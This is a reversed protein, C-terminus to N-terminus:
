VAIQNAYFQTGWHDLHEPWILSGGSILVGGSAVHDLVARRMSSDRPATSLDHTYPGFIRELGSRGGRSNLPFLYCERQFRVINSRDSLLKQYTPDLLWSTCCIAKFPRDPFYESFFAAAQRLSDGCDDFGMPGDEPIHIELITDGEQLVCEWESLPLEVSEQVAPGTPCILNGTVHEHTERFLTTWAHDDTMGGAGNFNGDTRFQLDSQAILRVHGTQRHRYARLPQRYPGTKYQLRGVRFLDGHLHSLLWPLIRTSLGWSHPRDPHIFKGDIPTGIDFFQQAWVYTDRYTLRAIPDAVKRAQHFARIHPLGSLAILLYFTGGYENLVPSLLPWDRTSGRDASRDIFLINHAHWALKVLDPDATIKNAAQVTFAIADDPLSAWQGYEQIAQAQLFPLVAPMSLISKEWGADLSTDKLISILKDPIGISTM